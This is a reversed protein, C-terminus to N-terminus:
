RIIRHVASSDARLAVVVPVNAKPPEGVGLKVSVNLAFTFYASVCFSFFAGIVGSVCFITKSDPKLISHRLMSSNWKCLIRSVGRHGLPLHWYLVTTMSNQGSWILEILEPTSKM